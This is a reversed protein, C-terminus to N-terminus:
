SSGVEGMESNEAYRELYGDLFARLAQVDDLELDVYQEALEGALLVRLEGNMEFVCLRDGHWDEIEYRM